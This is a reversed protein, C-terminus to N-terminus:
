EEEEEEGDGGNDAELFVTLFKIFSDYVQLSQLSQRHRFGPTQM